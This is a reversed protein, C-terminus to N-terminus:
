EDAEALELAEWMEDPTLFGKKEMDQAIYAEEVKRQLALPYPWGYPLFRDAQAIWEEVGLRFGEGPHTFEWVVREGKSLRVREGPHLAYVCYWGDASTIFLRDGEYPFGGRIAEAAAEVKSEFSAIMRVEKAGM